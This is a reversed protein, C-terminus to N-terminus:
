RGLLCRVAAYGFSSAIAWTSGAQAIRTIQVSNLGLGVLCRVVWPALWLPDAVVRYVTDATKSHDVIQTLTRGSVEYKTPIDRGHADKAWPPAAAAEIKGDADVVVVGGDSLELRQGEGLAIEYAYRTPAHVSTISTLMQVGTQTPIVANSSLKSSPFAIAGELLAGDGGGGLDPLEISLATGETGGIEVIGDPNLPVTVSRGGGLDAVASPGEQRLSQLSAALLSSDMAAVRQLAEAVDTTSIRVSSDDASAPVPVAGAGAGCILAATLALVIAM